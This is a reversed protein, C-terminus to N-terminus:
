NDDDIELSVDSNKINFGPTEIRLIIFHEDCTMSYKIQM